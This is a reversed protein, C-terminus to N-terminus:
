KKHEPKFKYAHGLRDLEAYLLKADLADPTTKHKASLAAAIGAIEGTQVVPAIVRTHEWGYGGTSVTRGATLLGKVKKPLM